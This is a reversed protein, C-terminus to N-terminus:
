QDQQAASRAALWRLLRWALGGCCEELGAFWQSLRLCGWGGTRLDGLRNGAGSQGGFLHVYALEAVPLGVFGGVLGFLGTLGAAQLAQWANGRAMGEAIGICLGILLGIIGGAIAVNLLFLPTFSLGLLNSVQWALLGGIAGLIAFYYIRMLRSM